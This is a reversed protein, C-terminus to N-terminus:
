KGNEIKVLEFQNFGGELEVSNADELKYVPVPQLEFVSKIRFVEPGYTETFSKSGVSLKKISVRVKDGVAFKPKLKKIKVVRDYLKQWVESVNNKNVKDSSTGISRNYSGNINKTIDILGSQWDSSRRETMYRYLKSKLTRIAREAQFAKFSSFSHYLKIGKDKLLSKVERNVFETGRDAFIAKPQRKYSKFVDELADRTESQSKKKIPRTFLTKSLCDVAVLIYSYNKNKTKLSRMDALDVSWISDIEPCIMPRRLYKRRTPKHSVFSQLKTLAEEVARKDKYKNNQLFGQLGSFAGSYRPHTYRRHIYKEDM